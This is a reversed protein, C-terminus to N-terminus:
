SVRNPTVTFFRSLFSGTTAGNEVRFQLKLVDGQSLGTSPYETSVNGERTTAAPSWTAYNGLQAGARTIAGTLASSTGNAYGDFGFRLRYDGARPVTISQVTALDAYTTSSTSENSFVQSSLPAGGVFEWKYASSSGANYRFHWQYSPNTTSDVLIAEQGDVPTAPLTTASPIPNTQVWPGWTGGVQQRTFTRATSVAETLTQTQYTANFVICLGYWSGAGPANAAGNALYWGSAAVANWDAVGTALAQLPAPLDAQAIASWVAAGGVGKVWQGNVVPAPVSSSFLAWTSVGDSRYTNGNDTAFYLSGIPVTNAAPRAALTGSLTTLANAWQAAYDTSSLKSLIQGALGGAPLGRGDANFIGDEIHNMHAADAPTTHDVWPQKTYAM